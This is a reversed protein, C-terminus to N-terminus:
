APVVSRAADEQAAFWAAYRRLGEDLPVACSFGLQQARRTDACAGLVDGVRFKDCVAVTSDSGYIGRLMEAVDFLRVPVGSGGNVVTVEANEGAPLEALLLLLRAADDVYIFDRRIHGREYIEVPQGTILRQSFWNLVGTYPNGITQGPGFVNQFRMIRVAFGAQMLVAQLLNEGAVKSAGYVSLPVCPSDEQSGAIELVAACRPCRPEFRHAALAKASRELRVAGHQVCVWRGEGYTARSSTFLVRTRAPDCHRRVAEMAAVLVNINERVTAGPNEFSNATGTDANMLAVADCSALVEGLEDLRAADLLHTRVRPEHAWREVFRAHAAPHPHAPGTFRDVVEISEFRAAFSRIFANGIFGGGGVLAIRTL